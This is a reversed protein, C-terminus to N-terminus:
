NQPFIFDDASRAPGPSDAKDRDADDLRRISWRDASLKSQDPEFNSFVIIKMKLSSVKQGSEYKSSFITGNKMQEILSYSVYDQKERTFDFVIVDQAESNWAYAADSARGGALYLADYNAVLYRSFWTKGGGGKLDVIWRVERDNQELLRALEEEQWTRLSVESYKRKLAQKSRDKKYIAAMAEVGKTYSMFTVPNNKAVEALDAGGALEDAVKQLDTRAGAGAPPTGVEMFDGDKRCYEGNKAASARAKELHPQRGSCRNAIEKKLKKFRIAKFFQLYGQLHPTGNAGTEKGVIGYKIGPMALIRARDGSGYNNLTFAWSKGVPNGRPSSRASSQSSSRQAESEDQMEEDVEIQIPIASSSDDIQPSPRLVNEPFDFNLRQPRLPPSPADSRGESAVDADSFLLAHMNEAEGSSLPETPTLYMSLYIKKEIQIQGM